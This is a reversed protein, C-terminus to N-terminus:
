YSNLLEIIQKDSLEKPDKDTVINDVETLLGLTKRIKYAGKRGAADPDLWTTVRDYKALETAQGTTIKTGLLSCTNIHRGVRIASLIDEVVVVRKNAEGDKSVRFMVKDRCRSPQIYKPKQGKLLARCQFWELNGSDDYVPLIVRDLKKSYGINHDKWVSETLGGGYLWLRGHLPIETTYDDPLELTLQISEAQENLERIHALEQLNQQGKGEFAQYGCRFCYASYGQPKHNVILTNGSGCEEPCDSRTHKNTPLNQAIELWKM